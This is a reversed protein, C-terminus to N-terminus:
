KGQQAKLARRKRFSEKLLFFPWVVLCITGLDIAAPAFSWVGIEEKIAFWAIVSCMISMLPVSSYGGSGGHKRRRYAAICGGCNGIAILTALAFATFGIVLRFANM